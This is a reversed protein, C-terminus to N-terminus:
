GGKVDAFVDAGLVGARLENKLVKGSANLPLEEVIQVHRPVKYNAMSARGFAVVDEPM